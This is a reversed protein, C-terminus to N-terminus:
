FLVFLMCLHQRAPQPMQRGRDNPAQRQRLASNRPFSRGSPAVHLLAYRAVSSAVCSRKSADSPSRGGVQERVSLGAQTHDYLVGESKLGNQYM